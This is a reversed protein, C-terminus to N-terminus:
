NEKLDLPSKESWRVSIKRMNMINSFIEGPSVLSINRLAFYMFLLATFRANKIYILASSIAWIFYNRRQKPFLKIFHDAYEIVLRVNSQASNVTISGTAAVRYRGLVENLVYGNGKSLLDWTIYIDMIKRDLSMIARATRRYMLSSHVGVFGLRAVQDFYVKGNDFM